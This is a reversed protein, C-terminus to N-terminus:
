SQRVLVSLYSFDGWNQGKRAVWTDEFSCREGRTTGPDMFIIEGASDVGIAVVGHGSSGREFYAIVGEPHFELAEKIAEKAYAKDKLWTREGDFRAFYDSSWGLASVFKAGYKEALSPSIRIGGNEKYLTKPTMEIGLNTMVMTFCTAYCARKAVARPLGWAPDGQLYFVHESDKPVVSVKVDTREGTSKCVAAIEAEGQGVTYLAGSYDVVAVKSDSSEWTLEDEGGEFDLYDALNADEGFYVEIDKIQFRIPEQGAAATAMNCAFLAAGALSGAM